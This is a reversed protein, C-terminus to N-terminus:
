VLKETRQEFGKLVELQRYRRDWGNRRTWGTRQEPDHKATVRIRRDTIRRRGGRDMPYSESM